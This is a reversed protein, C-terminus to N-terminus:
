EAEDRRKMARFLRRLAKEGLFAAAVLAAFVGLLASNSWGQAPAPAQASPPPTLQGTLATTAGPSAAAQTGAGQAAPM